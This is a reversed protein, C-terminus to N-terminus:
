RLVLFPVAAPDRSFGVPLYLHAFILLFRVAFVGLVFASMRAVRSLYVHTTESPSPMRLPSNIVEFLLFRKEHQHANQRPGERGLNLQAILPDDFHRV